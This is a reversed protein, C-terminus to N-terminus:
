YDTDVLTMSSNTRRGGPGSGVKPGPFKAPAKKDTATSLRRLYQSAKITSAPSLPQEDSGARISSSSSKRTNSAQRAGKGQMIILGDPEAAKASYPADPTYDDLGEEALANLLVEMAAKRRRPDVDERLGLIAEEEADFDEEGEDFDEFAPPEDYVAYRSSSGDWHPAKRREKNIEGSISRRVSTLGFGASRSRLDGYMRPEPSSQVSGVSGGRSSQQSREERRTSGDFAGGRSQPRSFSNPPGTSRRWSQRRGHVGPTWTEAMSVESGPREFDAVSGRVSVDSRWDSGLGTLASTRLSKRMSIGAIVSGPVAGGDLVAAVGASAALAERVVDLSENILARRTTDVHLGVFRDLRSDLIPKMDELVRAALEGDLGAESDAGPSRTSRRLKQRFDAESQSEFDCSEEAEMAATDIRSHVLGLLFGKISDIQDATFLGDASAMDPDESLDIIYDAVRAPFPRPSSSFAADQNNVAEKKVAPRARPTSPGSGPGKGNPSKKVGGNENVQQRAGYDVAGRRGKRVKAPLNAQAERNLGEREEVLEDLRILFKQRLYSTDLKEIGKFLQLLFYPESEHQSIVNAAGRYIPDKVQNFLTKSQSLTTEVEGEEDNETTEDQDQYDADSDETDDYGESDVDSVDVVDVEATEVWAPESHEAFDNPEGLVLNRLGPRSAIYAEYKQPPTGLNSRNREPAATYRAAPDPSTCTGTTVVRRVEPKVEMTEKAAQGHRKNFSQFSELDRGDEEELNEQDVTTEEAATSKPAAAEGEAKQLLAAQEAVMNRYTEALKKQTEVLRRYEGVRARAEMLEELQGSLKKFLDAYAQVDEEKEVDVDAKELDVLHLLVQQIADEIQSSALEIRSEDLTQFEEEEEGEEEEEADIQEDEGNDSKQDEKEAAAAIWEGLTQAGAEVRTFEGVEEAPETKVTVQVEKEVEETREYRASTGEEESSPGVVVKVDKSERLQIETWVEAPEEQDEKEGELNQQTSTHGTRLNSARLDREFREQVSAAVLRRLLQDVAGEVELDDGAKVQEHEQKKADNSPATPLGSLVERIVNQNAQVRDIEEELEDLGEDEEDAEDEDDYIGAAALGQMLSKMAKLEELRTRLSELEAQQSKLKEFREDQERDEDDQVAQQVAQTLLDVKETSETQQPAVQSEEENREQSDSTESANKEAVLARLTGLDRKLRELDGQKKRLSELREERERQDAESRERAGIIHALLIQPDQADEASLHFGANSLHSLLSSVDLSFQEKALETEAEDDDDQEVAEEQKQPQEATATNSDAIKDYAAAEAAAAAGPTVIVGEEEVDVEYKEKVEVSVEGDQSVHVEERLEHVYDMGRMLGELSGPEDGGEFFGTSELNGVLSVFRAMSGEHTKQLETIRSKLVDLAEFDNAELAKNIALRLHAMQNRKMELEALALRTQQVDRMQNLHMLKLALLKRLDEENMVEDEQANQDRPRSDASPNPAASM